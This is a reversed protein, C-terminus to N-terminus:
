LKQARLNMMKDEKIGSGVVRFDIFYEAKTKIQSGTAKEQAYLNTERVM